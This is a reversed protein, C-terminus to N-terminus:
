KRFVRNKRRTFKDSGLCAVVSNAIGETDMDEYEGPLMDLLYDYKRGERKDIGRIRWAVSSQNTHMGSSRCYNLISLRHGETLALVSGGEHIANKEDESISVDIKLSAGFNAFGPVANAKTKFNELAVISAEYANIVEKIKDAAAVAPPTTM